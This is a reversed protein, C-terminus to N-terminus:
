MSSPKCNKDYGIRIAMVVRGLNRNSYYNNITIQGSSEFRFYKTCKKATQNYFLM